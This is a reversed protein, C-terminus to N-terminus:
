DSDAIICTAQKKRSTSEPATFEGRKAREVDAWFENLLPLVSQFWQTDRSVSHIWEKELCWTIRELVDWGEEDPASWKMDGIPGYVYKMAGLSDNQLLIIMGKEDCSEPIMDMSSNAMASDFTFECYECVDCGTVELQLQMQYWYNQPVGNGVSRSSPCKIEVLHGLLGPSETKTILGDPSAALRQLHPHRIRGLETIQAKWRAELVLKAVPEFRIGWDLPSMEETLCAKRPGARPTQTMQPTASALQAKSVVLLGRARPSGFLQYFESATLITEMEKYWEQTRQESQPKAILQDIHAQINLPAITPTSATIVNSFCAHGIRFCELVENTKTIFNSPSESEKLLTDLEKEITTWWQDSLTSHLPPPQVEEMANLFSGTQKFMESYAEM